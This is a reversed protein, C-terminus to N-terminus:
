AQGDRYALLEAQVRAWEADIGDVRTLVVDLGGSGAATEAEQCLSALQM